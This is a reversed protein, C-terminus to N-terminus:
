RIVRWSAGYQNRLVPEFLNTNARDLVYMQVLMSDFLRQDVVWMAGFSRLHLVHLGKDNPLDVSKVRVRKGGDLHSVVHLAKVRLAKKKKGRYLIGKKRDFIHGRGLDFQGKKNPVPNARRTYLGFPPRSRKGDVKPRRVDQSFREVANAFSIMRHPIHLYVDRTRDPLPADPRALNAVWERRTMDAERALKWLTNTAPRSRKGAAHFGEALWIAINRAQRPSDTFHAQSVLLNDKGHKSGDTVANMRGFFYLPYGFDWWAIAYDGPKALKGLSQHLKAEGNRVVTSHGRSLSAEVNPAILLASLALGVTAGGIRRWMERDPLLKAVLKGALFALYTAGIAAIPVGYITFRLGGWFAFAGLAAIPMLLLLPRYRLAALLFGLLGLILAVSSGAYREAMQEFPPIKSERILGAVNIMRLDGAGARKGMGRETYGDVQTNITTLGPNTAVMTIATAVALVKIHSPKLWAASISVFLVVVLSLRLWLPAGVQMVGILIASSWAWDESRHFVALYGIYGLSLAFTIPAIRDYFFPGLAIVVVAWLSASLERKVVSHIFLWGLVLPVTVSFMDTDYYGLLTRFSYSAGVVAMCAAALGWFPAKFLRCILVTPVVILSAIFPPLYFLVDLLPTSTVKTALYPLATIAYREVSPLRLNHGSVGEVADQVIAAWFYGDAVTLSYHGEWLASAKGELGPLWLFRILLGFGYALLVLLAIWWWRLSTEPLSLADRAM